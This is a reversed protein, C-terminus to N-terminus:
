RGTSAPALLRFTLRQATSFKADSDQPHASDQGVGGKPRSSGKVFISSTHVPLTARQDVISSLTLRLYGARNPSDSPKASAIRGRVSVGQKMVMLGDVLVPQDLVAEFTDGSHTAASSLPATLRVVIQTGAPVTSPAFAQTPSIGTEKSSENFPLSHSAEATPTLSLIEERRSCATALALTFVVGLM